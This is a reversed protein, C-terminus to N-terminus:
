SQINEALFLRVQCSEDSKQFRAPIASNEPSFSEGSSCERFICDFPVDLRGGLNDILDTKTRYNWFGSFPDIGIILKVSPKRYEAKIHMRGIVPIIFTLFVQKEVIQSAVILNCIKELKAVVDLIQNSRPMLSGFELPYSQNALQSPNNFKTQGSEAIIESDSANGHMKMFQKFRSRKRCSCSSLDIDEVEHNISLKDANKQIADNAKCNM